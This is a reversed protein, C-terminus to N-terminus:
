KEAYCPAIDYEFFRVTIKLNKNEYIYQELELFEADVTKKKNNSKCKM